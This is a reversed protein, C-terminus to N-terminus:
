GVKATKVTYAFDNLYSVKPVVFIFAKSSSIKAYALIMSYGQTTVESVIYEVGNYTKVYSKANLKVGQSEFFKKAESSNKLLLNKLNSYNGNSISIGAFKDTGSESLM